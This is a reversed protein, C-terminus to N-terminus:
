GRNWSVKLHSIGLYHVGIGSYNAGGIEEVFIRCERMQEDANVLSLCDKAIRERRELSDERKLWDELLSCTMENRNRLSEIVAAAEDTLMWSKFANFTMQGNTSTYM